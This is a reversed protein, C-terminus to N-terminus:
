GLGTLGATLYSGKLLLNDYTVNSPTTIAAPAVLLGLFHTNIMPAVRKRCTSCIFLRNKFHIVFALINQPNIGLTILNAHSDVPAAPHIGGGGPLAQTLFQAFARESHALQAAGTANIFPSLAVPPVVFPPFGQGIANFLIRPLLLNHNIGPKLNGQGSRFIDGFFFTHSDYTVPLPLVAGGAPPPNRSIITVAALSLHCLTSPSWGGILSLLDTLDEIDTSYFERLRNILANMQLGPAAGSTDFDGLSSNHCYSIFKDVAVTDSHVDIQAPVAGLPGANVGAAAIAAAGVAGGGALVPDFLNANAFPVGAIGAIPVNLAAEMRVNPGLAPVAPAASFTYLAYCVCFLFSLIKKVFFM